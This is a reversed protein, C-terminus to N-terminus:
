SYEWSGDECGIWVSSDAKLGAPLPHPCRPAPPQPSGRESGGQTHTAEEWGHAVKATLTNTVEEERKSTDPFDTSQTEISFNNTLRSQGQPPDQVGPWPLVGLPLSPREATNEPPSEAPLEWSHVM